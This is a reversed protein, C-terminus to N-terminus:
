LHVLNSIQQQQNKCLMTQKCHKGIKVKEKGCKVRSAGNMERGVQASSYEDNMKQSSCSIAGKIILYVMTEAQVQFVLRGVTQNTLILASQIKKVQTM